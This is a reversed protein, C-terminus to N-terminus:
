LKLLGEAMIVILRVAPIFDFVILIFVHQVCRLRWAFQCLAYGVERLIAVLSDRIFMFSGRM